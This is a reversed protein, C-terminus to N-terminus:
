IKCQVAVQRFFFAIARGHFPLRCMRLARAYFALYVVAVVGGCLCSFSTALAAGRVGWGFIFIFLWDLVVNVAASIISCWM